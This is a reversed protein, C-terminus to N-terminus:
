RKWSWGQLMWVCLIEAGAPQADCPWGIPINTVELSEDRSPNRLKPFSIGFSIFIANESTSSNRATNKYHKPSQQSEQSGNESVKPNMNRLQPIEPIKNLHRSGDGQSECKENLHRRLPECREVWMALSKADRASADCALGCRSDSDCANRM